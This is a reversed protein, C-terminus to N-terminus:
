YPSSSWTTGGWGAPGRRAALTTIIPDDICTGCPYVLIGDGMGPVHVRCACYLTSGQCWTDCQNPRLGAGPAATAFRAPHAAEPRDQACGCTSSATSTPSRTLSSRCHRCVVAAPNIPERCYPCVGGHDPLTPEVRSGCCRCMLARADIQERCFPCDRTGDDAM